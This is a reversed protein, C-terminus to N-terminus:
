FTILKKSLIITPSIHVKKIGYAESEKNGGLYFSDLLSHVGEKLSEEYLLFSGSNL